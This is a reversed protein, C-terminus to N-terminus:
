IFLKYLNKSTTNCLATKGCHWAQKEVIGLETKWLELGLKGCIWARNEAANPESCASNEVLNPEARGAKEVSKPESRVCIEM